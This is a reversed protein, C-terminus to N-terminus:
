TCVHMHLFFSFSIGRGEDADGGSRKGREEGKASTRMYPLHLFKKEKNKDRRCAKTERNEGKGDKERMCMHMRSSVLPLTSFFLRRDEGEIGRVISYFNKNNNPTARWGRRRVREEIDQRGERRGM